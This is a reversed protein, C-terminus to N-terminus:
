PFAGERRHETYSMFYSKGFVSVEYYITAVDKLYTAFALSECLYAIDGVAKDRGIFYFESKLIFDGEPKEAEEVLGQERLM